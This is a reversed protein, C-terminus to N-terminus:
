PQPPCHLPSGLSHSILRKSEKLCILIQFDEKKFNIVIIM